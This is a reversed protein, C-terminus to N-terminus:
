ETDADDSTEEPLANITDLSIGQGSISAETQRVVSDLPGKINVNLNVRRGDFFDPNSGGVSLRLVQQGGLAGDLTLTLRDYRFNQLAQRLLKSRQDTGQLFAPPDEPSYRLTGQAAAALAAEAFRIESDEIRLPLAGQLTGEAQLGQVELLEILTALDVGDARITITANVPPSLPVETRDVRITGGAMRAKAGGIVLAPSPAIGIETRVETVPIVSAIEAIRLKQPETTVPPTLSNVTFDTEIGSFRAGQATFALDTTRITLATQGSAKGWGLTGGGELTGSARTLRRGM